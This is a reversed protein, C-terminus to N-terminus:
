KSLAKTAMADIAMFKGWADQLTPTNLPGAKAICHATTSIEKLAERLKANEARLRTNEDQVTAGEEPFFPRALRSITDKLKANENELELVKDIVANIAWDEAGVLLDNYDQQTMKLKTTDVEYMKDVPHIPEETWDNKM